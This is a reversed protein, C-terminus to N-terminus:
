LATLLLKNDFMKLFIILIKRLHLQYSAMNKKVAGKSNNKTKTKKDAKLAM